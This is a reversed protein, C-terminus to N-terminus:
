QTAELTFFFTAGQEPASEAWIRGGHRVVIRHVVALGVGTGEFEASRHLRQFVKFLKDAYKMDFGSGNDRVLYVVRGAEDRRPEVSVQRAERTRSYKFANSLLNTFVQQLLGPDADCAPLEGVSLTAKSEAPKVLKICEEVLSRM